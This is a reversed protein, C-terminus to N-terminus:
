KTIYNKGFSYILTANWVFDKAGVIGEKLQKNALAAVSLPFNKRALTVTATSFIGNHKDQQLYFVQPSFKIFYNQSLKINYFNANLTLFHSNSPTGKDFGYAYLYYIGASINKSIFYNPSLEAAFFRRTVIAEQVENNVTVQQVRFNLAPHAGIRLSFKNTKVAQYRFWFLMSWPKGSLSFRFEPDVSFRKKGMSLLVVGAPKGLSFTPVLSIGNQTIGASGSFHSVPKTSDKAQSYLTHATALVTALLISKKIM